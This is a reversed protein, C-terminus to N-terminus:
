SDLTYIEGDGLRGILLWIFMSLDIFSRTGVM